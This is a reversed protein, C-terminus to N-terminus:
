RRGPLWRSDATTRTTPSMDVSSILELGVTAAPTTYKPSDAPKRAVRDCEIRVRAM